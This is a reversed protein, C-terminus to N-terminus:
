KRKEGYIMARILNERHLLSTLLVGGIHTFVLLLVLNAFLEHVGELLNKPLYSLFTTALPGQGDTALLIVGSLITMSLSVLLSFIMVAGAPNHGLYRKAKGQALLKLYVQLTHSSVSFDSFRAHRTGIFGWILRFCILGAIFYGASTHITMWYDEILYALFFLSALLWHFIRILPDWVKV